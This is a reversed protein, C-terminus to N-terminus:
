PIGPLRALQQPRNRAKFEDFELVGGVAAATGPDVVDGLRLLGSFELPFFGGADRLCAGGEDGGGVRAAMQLDLVADSLLNSHPM